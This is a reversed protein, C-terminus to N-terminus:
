EDAADSTYLLCTTYHASKTLSAKKRSALNQQFFDRWTPTTRGFTVVGHYDTTEVFEDSLLINRGTLLAQEVLSEDATHTALIM